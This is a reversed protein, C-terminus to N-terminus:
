NVKCIMNDFLTLIKETPNFFKPRSPMTPLFASLKYTPPRVLSQSFILVPTPVCAIFFRMAVHPRHITQNMTKM